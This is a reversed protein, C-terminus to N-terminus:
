RASVTGLYRKTHKGDVGQDWAGTQLYPRLRQKLTTRGRHILSRAAAATVNLVTGIEAYSLERELLLGVARGQRSPLEALAVEIQQRLEKRLLADLPASPSSGNRSVPAPTPGTQDLSEAPHRMRRRLENLGLNRAISYLWTSFRATHRFRRAAIFARLFANQAVDQAESEDRLMRHLRVTMPLQYKAVLDEFAGTDGHQIRSILGADSDSEAVSHM